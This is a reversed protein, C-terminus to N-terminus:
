LTSKVPYGEFWKEPHLNFPSYSCFSGEFSPYKILIASIKLVEWVSCDAGFCCFYLMNPLGQPLLDTKNDLPWCNSYGHRCGQCLKQVFTCAHECFVMGEIVVWVETQHLLKPLAGLTGSIGIDHQVQHVVFCGWFAFNTHFEIAVMSQKKFINMCFNSQAIESWKQLFKQTKLNNQWSLRLVWFNM